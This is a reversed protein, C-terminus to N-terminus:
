DEGKLELEHIRKEANRLALEPVLHGGRNPHSELERIRGEATVLQEFAHLKEAHLLRNDKMLEAVRAELADKEAGEDVYLKRFREVSAEAKEARAEEDARGEREEDLQQYACAMEAELERIRVDCEEHGEPRLHRM